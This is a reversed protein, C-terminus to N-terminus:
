MNGIFASEQLVIVHVPFTQTNEYRLLYNVFNIVYIMAVTYNTKLLVHESHLAELNQLYIIYM